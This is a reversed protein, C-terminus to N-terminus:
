SAKRTARSRLATGAQISAKPSALLWPQVAYAPKSTNLTPRQECGWLSAGLVMSSAICQLNTVTPRAQLLKATYISAKHSAVARWHSVLTADAMSCTENCMQPMVPSSCLQPVRADHWDEEISLMTVPMAFTSQTRVFAHTHCDRSFPLRVFLSKCITNPLTVLAL